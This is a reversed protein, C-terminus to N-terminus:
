EEITEQKRQQLEELKMLEVMDGNEIGIQNVSTRRNPRVPMLDNSGRREQRRPSSRAMDEPISAMNPPPGDDDELPQYPITGITNPTPEDEKLPSVLEANKTEKLYEDLNPKQPSKPQGPSIDLKMLENLDGKGLKYANVSSRRDPRVPMLDNSGRRERRRSADSKRREKTGAEDPPVEDNLPATIPQGLFIDSNATIATHGTWRQEATAEHIVKPRGPKITSRFSNEGWLDGYSDSTVNM